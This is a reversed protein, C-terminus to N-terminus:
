ARSRKDNTCHVAVTVRVIYSASTRGVFIRAPRPLPCGRRCRRGAAEPLAEAVEPGEPVEVEVDGGAGHEAQEAVVAGALRGRDPDQGRQGGGGLADAVRRPRDVDDRVRSATRARMPTAACCAVTSPSSSRGSSGRSPRGGGGGSCPAVRLPPGALQELLEVEGVRGVPQHLRERAAHAPAEVEGRAHDGRRRHEEEVLRGGPEVGAAAVLQPRHQPLRTRPPVVAIRVVCYRSSASWSASSM